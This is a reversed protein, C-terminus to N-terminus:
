LVHLPTNGSPFLATKDKSIIQQERIKISHIHPKWSMSLSNRHGLNVYDPHLKIYM